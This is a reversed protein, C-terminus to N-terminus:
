RTRPAGPLVRALEVWRNGVRAHAQVLATEEEVSWAAKTINPRLQNHWRERCQKGIRGPFHIALTSWQGEGVQAVLSLPPTSSAHTTSFAPRGGARGSLMPQKGEAGRAGGATGGEGRGGGCVCSVM